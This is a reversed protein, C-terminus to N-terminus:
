ISVLFLVIQEYEQRQLTMMRQHQRKKLKKRFITLIILKDQETRKVMMM